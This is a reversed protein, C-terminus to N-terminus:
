NTITFNFILKGFYLIRLSIIKNTVSTFIELENEKFLPIEYCFKTVEEVGGCNKM